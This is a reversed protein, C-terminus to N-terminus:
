LFIFPAFFKFILLDLFSNLFVKREKVAANRVSKGLLAAVCNYRHSTFHWVSIWCLQTSINLELSKWKVARIFRQMIGVITCKLLFHSVFRRNGNYEVYLIPFCPFFLSQKGFMNILLVCRYIRFVRLIFSDDSLLLLM